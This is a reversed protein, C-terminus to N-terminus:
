RTNNSKNKIKEVQRNFKKANYARLYKFFRTKGPLKNLIPRAIGAICSKVNNPEWKKIFPVYDKSIADEFFHTRDRPTPIQRKEGGIVNSSNEQIVVNRMKENLVAIIERGKETHVWLKTTGKDDDMACSYKGIEVCDGITFDSVRPMERFACEYCCPRVNYHDFFTKAYNRTDYKQDRQVGNSFTVCVNPTAYGYKKNRFQVNVVKTHHREELYRIWKAFIKPSSVGLCLLDITILNSNDGTYNKLGHVQCPTGVFLVLNGHEICKKITHFTNNLTSQVYKSGRMELLQEQVSAKKHCVVMEEDYGVAFVLGHNELVYDAILSFAGGATSTARVSEINYQVAMYTSEKKPEVSKTMFPCVKTCRGCHICKEQDISPYLFGEVDPKMIIAEKPCISYCATCGCCQERDLNELM